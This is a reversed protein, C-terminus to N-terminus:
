SSFIHSFGIKNVLDAKRPGLVEVRSGIKLITTALPSSGGVGVM